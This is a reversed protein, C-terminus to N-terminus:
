LWGPSDQAGISVQIVCLSQPFRGRNLGLKLIQIAAQCNRRCFVIGFDLFAVSREQEVLLCGAAVPDGLELDGSGHLHDVVLELSGTSVPQLDQDQVSAQAAPVNVKQKEWSSCVSFFSLM